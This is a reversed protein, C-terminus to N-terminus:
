DIPLIMRSIHRQMPVLWRAGHELVECTDEIRFGYRGRLYLGPEITIADGVKLLNAGKRPSVWPPQHIARGVGHGLSHIFQKHVGCRELYGRAIADVSAGTRGARVGRFARVQAQLVQEYRERFLARPTGFFLTRTMDSRMGGVVGGMDLVLLDGERARRSTPVHHPEAANATLAAITPFALKEAGEAFLLRRVLAAIERESMGVRILRKAKHFAAVNVEASRQINKHVFM